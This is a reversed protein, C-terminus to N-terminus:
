EYSIIKILFEEERYNLSLHVYDSRREETKDYYVGRCEAISYVKSVANNWSFSETSISTRVIEGNVKWVQKIKYM